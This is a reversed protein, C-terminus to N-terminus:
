DPSLAAPAQLLGTHGWICNFKKPSWLTFAYAHKNRDAYKKINESLDIVKM